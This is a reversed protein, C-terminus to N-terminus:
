GSGSSDLKCGRDVKINDEWIRGPRKAEPKAVLIRFANRVKLIGTMENEEM